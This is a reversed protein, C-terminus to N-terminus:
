RTIWWVLGRGASRSLAASFRVTEFRQGACDKLRRRTEPFPTPFRYNIGEFSYGSLDLSLGGTNEVEIFEFPDGGPPNYMIETIRIPSGVQAVEFNLDVIASWNTSDLSRAM